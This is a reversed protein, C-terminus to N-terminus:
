VPGFAPAMTPFATGTIYMVNGTVRAADVAKNAYLRLDDRTGSTAEQVILKQNEASRHCTFGIKDTSQPVEHEVLSDGFQLEVEPSSSDKASQRTEWLLRRDYYKCRCVTCTFMGM